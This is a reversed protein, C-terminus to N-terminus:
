LPAIANIEKELYELESRLDTADTTLTKIDTTNDMVRRELDALRGLISDLTTQSITINM